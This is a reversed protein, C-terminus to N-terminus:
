ECNKLCKISIVWKWILIIVMGIGAVIGLTKYMKENKGKEEEAKDIQKNIFNETVEIESLQGEIDTKGLLNGMKKLLNRDEENLNFNAEQIAEQWAIGAPMINMKTKTIKIFELINGEFNDLIDSFIEPLPEYTFRIKTKLIGLFNKIERLEIVRQKYKNSLLFGISISTLFIILLIIYKIIIV